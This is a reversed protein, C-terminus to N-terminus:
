QLLQMAGDAHSCVVIVRALGSADIYYGLRSKWPMVTTGHVLLYGRGLGNLGHVLMNHQRLAIQLKSSYFLKFVTRDGRRLLTTDLLPTGNFTVLEFRCWLRKLRILRRCARQVKVIARMIPGNRTICFMEDAFIWRYEPDDEDPMVRCLPCVNRVGYHIYDIRKITMGFPRVVYVLDNDRLESGDVGYFYYDVISPWRQWPRHVPRYPAYRFSTM